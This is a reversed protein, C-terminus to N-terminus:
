LLGRRTRALRRRSRGYTGALGVVGGALEALVYRPSLVDRGLVSRALTRLQYGLWWAIMSRLRGRQAPEAGYTKAIFAMFGTGWTWYQRRLARDTRRHRHFVLMSPEYVIPRGARAIRYFLDLDGGGPLPPGTDLAEDFGGLELAITKRVAMNCGAGFVGAGIPYHINGLLREGAFLRTEFGRQFGGRREFRVQAATELEYPLVGGTVVGAAPEAALAENLGRLWGRDVVVDDDLFAVVEGTAEALARNRAVDLGPVPEVVYRVDLLATVLSRTSGDPPANDVVLIEFRRHATAADARLAVLSALCRELEGVRDHTCVAATLSV